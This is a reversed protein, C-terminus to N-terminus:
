RERTASGVSAPPEANRNRDLVSQQASPLDRGAFRDLGERYREATADPPPTELVVEGMGSEEGTFAFGARYAAQYAIPNNVGIRVRDYGRDLVREVVFALLKPGIGTGRQDTRVSVYRIRIAGDAARDEDFSVAALVAREPPSWEPGDPGNHDDALVVAIGTRGTDYNGAYAFREHDLDLRPSDEPWGLLRFQM